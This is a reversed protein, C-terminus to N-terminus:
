MSPQTQCAKDYTRRRKRTHELSLQTRSADLVMAAAEVCAQSEGFEEKLIAEPDPTDADEAFVNIHGLRVHTNGTDEDMAHELAVDLGHEGILYQMVLVQARHERLARRKKPYDICGCPVM